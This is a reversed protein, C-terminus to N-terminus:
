RPRGQLNRLSERAGNKQRVGLLGGKWYERETNEGEIGGGM